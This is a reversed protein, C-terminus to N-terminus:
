NALPIAKYTATLIKESIDWFHGGECLKNKSMEGYIRRPPKGPIEM